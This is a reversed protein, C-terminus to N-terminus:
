RNPLWAALDAHGVMLWSRNGEIHDLRRAQWDRIWTAGPAISASAQAWGEILQRQLERSDPPLMWESPRREVHYGASDFHEEARDTADPGAAEGFGKDTRQHRNV